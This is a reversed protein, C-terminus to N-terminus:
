TPDEDTCLWRSSNGCGGALCACGDPASCCVAPACPSCSVVHITQGAACSVISDGDQCSVKHTDTTTCNSGEVCGPDACPTQVPCATVSNGGPEEYSAEPAAQTQNAAVILATALLALMGGELVLLSWNRAIM